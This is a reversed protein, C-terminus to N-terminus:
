LINNAVTTVDEGVFPYKLEMMYYITVGLSWIDAKKDYPLRACIEPCINCPTGIRTKAYSDTTSLTKSIGFDIIKFLYPSEWDKDEM